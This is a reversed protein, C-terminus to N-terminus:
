GLSSLGMSDVVRIFAAAAMAVAQWSWFFTAEQLMRRGVAIADVGELTWSM